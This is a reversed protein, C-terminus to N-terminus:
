TEALEKAEDIPRDGTARNKVLTRTITKGLASITLNLNKPRFRARLWKTYLKCLGSQMTARPKMPLDAQFGPDDQCALATLSEHPLLRLSVRFRDPQTRASEARCCSHRRLHPRVSLDPIFRLFSELHDNGQLIEHSLRRVNLNSSLM